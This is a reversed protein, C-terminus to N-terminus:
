FSKTAFFTERRCVSSCRVGGAATDQLGSYVVLLLSLVAIQRAAAVM